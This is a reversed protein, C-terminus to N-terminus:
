NYTDRDVPFGSKSDSWTRGDAGILIVAAMMHDVRGDAGCRQFVLM